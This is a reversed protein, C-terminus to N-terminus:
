EVQTNVRKSVINICSIYKLCSYISIHLITEYQLLNINYLKLYM